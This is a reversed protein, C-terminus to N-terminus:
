KLEKLIRQMTIHVVIMHVDEVKQVHDIRVLIPIGVLHYLRGGFYGCLGITIGGNAKAWDIAKLVNLFIGAEQYPGIVLVVM